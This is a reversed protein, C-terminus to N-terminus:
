EWTLQVLRWDGDSQTWLGRVKYLRGTEPVLGEAGTLLVTADSWAQTPDHALPTITLGSIVVGINRYRLFYGALLRRVGAKDLQGPEAAPGGQFTDTLYARVAANDHADLAHAIDDVAARIGAEPPTPACAALVLLCMTCLLFRCRDVTRVRTCPMNSEAPHPTDPLGSVAFM